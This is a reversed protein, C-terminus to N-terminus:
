AARSSRATMWVKQFGRRLIKWWGGSMRLPMTGGPKRDSLRGFDYDPCAAALFIFSNM